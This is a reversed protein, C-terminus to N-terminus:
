RFSRYFALSAPAGGASPNATFIWDNLSETHFSSYLLCGAAFPLYFYPQLLLFVFFCRCTRNAGGMVCRESRSSYHGKCPQEAVGVNLTPTHNIHKPPILGVARGPLPFPKRRLCSAFLFSFAPPRSAACPGIRYAFHRNAPKRPLRHLRCKRLAELLAQRYAAREPSVGAGPFAPPQRKM